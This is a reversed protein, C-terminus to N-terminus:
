KPDPSCKAKHRNSQLHAEWNALAIFQFCHKCYNRNADHALQLKSKEVEKNKEREAAVHKESTV